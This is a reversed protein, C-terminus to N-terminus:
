IGYMEAFIAIGEGVDIPYFVIPTGGGIQLTISIPDFDEDIEMSVLEFSIEQGSFQDDIHLPLSNADVAVPGYLMFMPSGIFVEHGDSLYILQGEPSDALWAEQAAGSFYSYVDLLGIEADGGNGGADGGNGGADSGNGGADGGNGGADSGNGGVASGGNGGTSGNGGADGNGCGVLMIALLCIVTIISLAKKM